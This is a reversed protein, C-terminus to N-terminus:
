EWIPFCDNSSPKTLVGPEVKRKGSQRVESIPNESFYFKYLRAHSFLASLTNRIKAKYSRALHLSKLWNKVDLGEVETLLHKGWYHAIWVKLVTRLRSITAFSKATTQSGSFRRTIKEL